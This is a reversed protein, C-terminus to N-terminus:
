AKHIFVVVLCRCDRGNLLDQAVQPNACASSLILFLGYCLCLTPCFDNQAKHIFVVVLCRCDHGNLLDQAVQSNACASSLCLACVKLPSFISWVQAPSWDTEAISWICGRSTSHM